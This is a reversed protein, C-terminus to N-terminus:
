EAGLTVEVRNTASWRGLKAMKGYRFCTFGFLRVYWFRTYDGPRVKGASKFSNRNLANTISVMRGFGNRAMHAWAYTMIKPAIGQGRHDPAVWIGAGHFDRPGFTLALWDDQAWERTVYQGYGVIRGDREYVTIGLTDGLAKDLTEADLGLEVLQPVDATTAWRLVPDHDDVDALTRVDRAVIIWLNVDILWSPIFRWKARQLAYLIGGWAIENRVRLAPNM